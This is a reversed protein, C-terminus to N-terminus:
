STVTESSFYRNLRASLELGNNTVASHAHVSRKPRSARGLHRGKPRPPPTSPHSPHLAEPWAEMMNLSLENVFAIVSAM